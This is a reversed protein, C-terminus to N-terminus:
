SIKAVTASIKVVESKRNKIERRGFGCVNFNLFISLNLQVYM